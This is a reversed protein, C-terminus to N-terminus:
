PGARASMRSQPRRTAPMARQEDVVGERRDAHRRRDQALQHEPPAEAVDAPGARQRVVPGIQCSGTAPRAGAIGGGLEGLEAPEGAVDGELHQQREAAALHQAPESSRGPTATSAHGALQQRSPAARRRRGAGDHPPAGAVARTEGLEHAAQRRTPRDGSPEPAAVAVAGLVASAQRDAEVVLQGRCRDVTSASAAVAVVAPPTLMSLSSRALMGCPNNTGTDGPVRKTVTPPAIALSM